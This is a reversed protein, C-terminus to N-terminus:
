TIFIIIINLFVTSVFRIRRKFKSINKNMRLSQMRLNVKSQLSLLTDLLLVVPRCRIWRWHRRSRRFLAYRQRHIFGRISSQIKVAAHEREELPDGKRFLHKLTMLRKDIGSIINNMTSSDTNIPASSDITQRRGTHESSSRPSQM